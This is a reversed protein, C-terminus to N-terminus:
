SKIEPLGAFSRITKAIHKMKREKIVPYVCIELLAAETPSKRDTRKETAERFPELVACDAMDTTKTDIGHRLLHHRLDDRKDADVAVPYYVYIHEENISRTLRVGPVEGLHDTLVKANRRAGANFADIHKLQKLGIAAQLNVFATIKPDSRAFKAVLENGVASDMLPKGMALKLRLMPFVTLGFVLPRTVLWKVWTSIGNKFMTGAEPVRATELIKRAREAISEDSTVIAGGDICPMNKGVAFSFIALDGFTGVKRGNVTAGMAHACDEMLYIGHEKTLARLEEIACPLGFLHTALIAGTKETILPAFHEPGSNYTKPDADCFVPEYGLIKAVMPMVPFTFAPFIIEQGPELDLAMLALQFASRGSAAFIAHDAGLYAAFERAYEELEPGEVLKGSLKKGLITGLTGPPLNVARRPVTGIIAM